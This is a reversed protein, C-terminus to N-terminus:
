GNEGVFLRGYTGKVEAVRPGPAHRDSAACCVPKEPRHKSVLSPRRADEPGSPLKGSAPRGPGEPKHQPGHGAAAESLLREADDRHVPPEAMQRATQARASHVLCKLLSGTSQTGSADVPCVKKHTQSM